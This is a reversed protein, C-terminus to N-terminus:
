YFRKHKKQWYKILLFGFIMGGLHAFHAVNDGVNNQIGLYLEILGYGIVFYKAKIPIPIFMLFLETNPFLMGFALLIGFVAGSAGITPTNVFRELVANALARGKEVYLTSDPNAMWNDIDQWVWQAPRSVYSRIFDALLGPEPTNQFAMYQEYIRHYEWMSVGSHLAAAGLGAVLYYFIFRKTGWVSELIRGFMFVAFMNFFIHSIDAHMFMHTIYQYPRWHESPFMFLGLSSNLDKGQTGMFYSLAFMIVNLIIIVKVAPTLGRNPRYNNM